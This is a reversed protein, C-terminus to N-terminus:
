LKKRVNSWEFEMSELILENCHPCYLSEKWRFGCLQRKEDAYFVEQCYPCLAKVTKKM